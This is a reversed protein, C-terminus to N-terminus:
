SKHGARKVKILGSKEQLSILVRVEKEKHVPFDKPYFNEKGNKYRVLKFKVTKPGFYGKYEIKQPYIIKICDFGGSLVKM